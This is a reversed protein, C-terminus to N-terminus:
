ERQPKPPVLRISRLDILASTPPEPATVILQRQGSHLDIQGATWTKYDDWSGTGPVRATLLRTGTSLKIPNGATGNDCAYDFEVTWMGSQPVSITWVAYDDTSSWWGLNGYTSEFVLSPGYIQAASAPLTISGDPSATVLAPFNGDFRKWRTGSSQVFAIVDAFDQASLDKELGEPMLSRNSCVLEELDSRGVLQEKGDTGLLTVSNGTENLLMGSFTRGQSTVATYSLFKAEVARNPDLIATLLAQESRDKLAALDAGIQRGIDQLRHCAACRKTFVARGDTVNGNLESIVSEFEEVLRSRESPTTSGFLDAASTRIEKDRHNLLSERATADLDSSTLQESRLSTLLQRTRDPHQLLSNVIGSRVSPTITRWRQLLLDTSRETGTVSVIAAQQVETPTSPEFLDVLRTATDDAIRGATGLFQLTAARHEASQRHSLAVFAAQARVSKLLPNLVDTVERHRLIGPLARAAASWANSSADTTLRSLLQQTTAVVADTQKLSAAQAVLNWVTSEAAVRDSGLEQLVTSINDATLSTIVAGAVHPSGADSRLLRALVVAAEPSASMGLSLALQQRVAASPDDVLLQIQEPLQHDPNKFWDELLRLATRRVEPHEDHLMQGYIAANGSVDNSVGDLTYLTQVRVSPQAHQTAIEILRTLPLGDGDRHLLLRQATDRWWGNPSALREVLEEAPIEDWRDNFWARLDPQPSPTQSAPSADVGDSASAAGSDAKSSENEAKGETCCHGTPVIRYIRGRDDGARLNMRRQYEAPIWEPHEIVQRYMDAIYVAGDPGTRVMVPRTWNDSSAFFESNQEDDARRATFTVGNRELVLRSVLNHVPECTFANGHFEAGALTDRCISTSCASTFRNAKDFDNFRALTASTPFVPAAGPVDAITTRTAIGTAQPNRRLYRDELVYHWIPNSNNNGFWNGYDDRERGFQTQGSLPDMWGHDPQIRLDRGRISVRTGASVVGTAPPVATGAQPRPMLAADATASIEGGSDGNALYVWGDLGWRLGNVRHQQNGEVFGTYLVRRVDAGFDGDTDEAYIVDPATTILIGNRWHCIGNPFPLHDLFTTARDYRGDHDTDELVRVRGTGAAAPRSGDASTPSGSTQEPGNPYDGMEVVWLRGQVDWDFAVPDRILPEAAVLEVRLGPKTTICALSEEASKPAPYETQLEQSYFHHPLLKQVTDCILDEAEPALRTPRAYYVMSSDVEYGGERLLRKSAIYCPVDNSYANVWLRDGDFMDNLRIAYDVVVEGGLFVMALDEGFCWTQVPYDPVTAPLPKGEDLMKLFRQALVGAPGPQGARTEWEKRSPLPGLPLNVRALRCSINPDVHQLFGPREGAGTDASQSDAGPVSSLLRNVEDAVTRGHQRAQEHTGRPSPNADAGCGIAILAVSGAHDAEIMDAAFGPWDGSIRNFSGTETTAHCAYSALVAILQGDTAHAALIPFQHDTPGDPTEGFGTWGGNQVVRRNMAFGVSGRGVSLRAPQRGAVARDVVDVLRTILDAEYQKLHAAHEAPLDTLVNPAFGRLWPGSHTHTSSIVFRERAINHTAAVQRFVAETVNAPVGCNDVTVLVTLPTEALSAAAPASGGQKAAAPTTANDATKPEEDRNDGIVLARAHIRAAVDAAEQTRNGYGTLRVPYDPTIDVVAAGVSVPPATKRREARRHRTLLEDFSARHILDSVGSTDENQWCVHRDRVFVGNHSGDPRRLLWEPDPDSGNMLTQIKLPAGALDGVGPSRRRVDEHSVSAVVSPEAERLARGGTLSQNLREAAERFTLFKVKSGHKQVAHDILEVVQEAEIWGHPHFVLNFVGQKHVTIDLAAKWDAVTQPNNVGHLHQASWDSPAVCPFQWCSGNIVYPYPYNTIYNVFNDHVTNGRKLNRVKYKWFREQGDEDLVLERPISTDESTFFNMVSSDIQLYHEEPTTGSFIEAFFRPSVTNLSDCCPTRFAVPQNGPIRHLLDVCRDYTSRAKDFDGGQLLPCPHDVTHVEISLGEELWSQLQADDPKVSCTMISVPARGDIQKLRNLIPRLYLEYKAPDRMDDIALVVVCDVGDEGVWQPTLLPPFSQDPYWPNSRDLSALEGGDDANLVGVIGMWSLLVLLSLRSVM